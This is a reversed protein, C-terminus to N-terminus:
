CKATRQIYYHAAATNGSEITSYSVHSNRSECLSYCSNRRLEVRPVRPFMIFLLFLMTSNCKKQLSSFVQLILKDALVVDKKAWLSHYTLIEMYVIIIRAFFLLVGFIYMNTLPFQSPLINLQFQRFTESCTNLLLFLYCNAKPSHAGNADVVVFRKPPLSCCSRTHQPSVDDRCVFLPLHSLVCVSLLPLLVSLVFFSRFFFFFPSFFHSRKEEEFFNGHM